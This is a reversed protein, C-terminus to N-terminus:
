KIVQAALTAAGTLASVALLGAAQADWQPRPLHFRRQPTAHPRPAADAHERVPAAVMGPDVILRNVGRERALDLVARRTLRYYRQDRGLVTTLRDPSTFGVACRTDDRDRFLRLSVGCGADRLPVYLRDADPPEELM